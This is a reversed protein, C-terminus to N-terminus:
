PRVIITGSMSAGHVLCDYTYTGPTTFTFAYTGTTQTPSDTPLTGPATLWGVGHLISGSAWTWTVKGGHGITVSTPAFSIGPGVTVAGVHTVSDGISLFVIPSGTLSATATDTQTGLTGGLTRTVSVTGTGDSTPGTSSVSGGGTGVAWQIAVGAVGNGHADKVVVSHPAPLATGILGGQSDGTSKVLQAANGATATATFSVPSGNLGTVGAQVTKTGSTSPLTLTTTVHGSVDSTDAAQSLGGGGATVNFSVIVGAVPAGLHDTVTAQFPAGLQSLVTDSQGGGTGAAITFAGQIQSISTFTIPSGTAGSLSATTGQFGAASGLTQGMAAHGGADTLSTGSTVSGGGTTATWTVTQGAAAANNQDVVSVILNAGLAANASGVQSDGSLKSM